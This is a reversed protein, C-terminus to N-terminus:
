SRREKGVRREESRKKVQTVHSETNDTTFKIDLVITEPPSTFVKDPRITEGDSTMIGSENWIKYPNSLWNNIQPQNWIQQIESLLNHRVDHDLLGDAIEGALSEEINGARRVEAMVEHALAGYRAAKDMMLITNIDRDSTKSWTKEFFASLPYTTMAISTNNILESGKLDKSTENRHIPQDMLLKG